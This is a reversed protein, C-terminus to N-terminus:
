CSIGHMYRYMSSGLNQGFGYLLRFLTVSYGILSATFGGAGGIYKKSQESTIIHIDEQMVVQQIVLDM